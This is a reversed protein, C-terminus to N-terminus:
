RRVFALVSQMKRMLNSRRVARNGKFYGSFGQFHRAIVEGKEPNSIM